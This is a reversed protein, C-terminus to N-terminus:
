GLKPASFGWRAAAIQGPTKEAPAVSNFSTTVAPPMKPPETQPASPSFISFAGYAIAAAVPIGATWNGRWDGASPSTGTAVAGLAAGFLGFLGGGIATAIGLPGGVLATVAGVLVVGIVGVIGAGTLGTYMGTLFENRKAM